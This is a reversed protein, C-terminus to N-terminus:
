AVSRLTHILRAPAESRVLAEGVLIGDYGAAAMRAAGAADSVGSEAVRVIGPPLSGAVQESVALDTVFTTLDRNNVGVIDAGAGVALTAEDGTLAAAGGVVGGAFFGPVM